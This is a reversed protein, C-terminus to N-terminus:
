LYKRAYKASVEISKLPSVAFNDGQEVFYQEMGALQTDALHSHLRDRRQRARHLAQSM